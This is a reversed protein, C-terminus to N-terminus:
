RTEHIYNRLACLLEGIYHGQKHPHTATVIRHFLTWFTHGPWEKDQQSWEHLILHRVSPTVPQPDELFDELYKIAESACRRSEIPFEFRLEMAKDITMVALGLSFPLTKCVQPFAHLM